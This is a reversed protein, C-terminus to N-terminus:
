TPNILMIRHRRHHNTIKLGPMSFEESSGTAVGVGSAARGPLSAAMARPDVPVVIPQDRLLCAGDLALGHRDLLKASFPSPESM